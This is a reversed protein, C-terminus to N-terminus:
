CELPVRRLTGRINQKPTSHLPRPSPLLESASWPSASPRCAVARRQQVPRRISFMCLTSTLGQTEHASSHWVFQPCHLPPHTSPWIGERKTVQMDDVRVAVAEWRSERERLSVSRALVPPTPWTGSSGGGGSSSSGGGGSSSSSSGSLASGAAAAAGLRGERRQLALLAPPPALLALLLHPPTGLVGAWLPLALGRFTPVLTADDESSTSSVNATNSGGCEGRSTAALTFLARALADDLQHGAGHGLAALLRARWAAAAALAGPCLFPLPWGLTAERVEDAGLTAATATTAQGGASGAKSAEAAGLSVDGGKSSGSSGAPRVLRGIAQGLLATALLRSSLPAAAPESLSCPSLAAAFTVLSTQFNRLLSHAPAGGAAQVAALIAAHMRFLPKLCSESGYAERELAGHLWDAHADALAVPSLASYSSDAWAVLATPQNPPTPTAFSYTFEFATTTLLLGVGDADDNSHAAHISATLCVESCASGACACLTTL